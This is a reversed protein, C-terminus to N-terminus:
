LFTSPEVECYDTIVELFKEQAAEDSSFIFVEFTDGQRIGLSLLGILAQANVQRGGSRFYIDANIEKLQEVLLIATRSFLNKTAKLKILPYSM